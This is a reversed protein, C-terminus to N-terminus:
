RVSVAVAEAWLQDRDRTLGEIDISGCAVPWFRRGGTEDRLYASHNVSGAFICQRPIEVLRAGYPPRYRDTARSLFAKIKGVEARSMSDLEAVEIIWVGHTQM